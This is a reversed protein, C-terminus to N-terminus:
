SVGGGALAALTEMIDYGGSIYGSDRLLSKTYNDIDELNKQFAKIGLIIERVRSGEQLRNLAIEGVETMYRDVIRKIEYCDEVKAISFEEDRTDLEVMQIISLQAGFGAIDQPDLQEREPYKQFYLPVRRNYDKTLLCEWKLKNVCDTPNMASYDNKM